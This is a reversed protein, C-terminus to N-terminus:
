SLDLWCRSGPHFCRQGAWRGQSESHLARRWDWSLPDRDVGAWPQERQPGWELVAVPGSTGGPVRQRRGSFPWAMTELSDSGPIVMSVTVPM